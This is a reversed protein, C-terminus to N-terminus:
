VRAGIGPSRTTVMLALAKAFAETRQKGAYGCRNDKGTIACASCEQEAAASWLSDGTPPRDQM